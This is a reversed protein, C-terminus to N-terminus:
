VVVAKERRHQIKGYYQFLGYVYSIISGFIDCLLMCHVIM